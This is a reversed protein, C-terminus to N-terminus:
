TSEVNTLKTPNADFVRVIGKLLNSLLLNVGGPPLSAVQESVLDNLRCLNTIDSAELESSGNRKSRLYRFLAKALRVGFEYEFKTIVLMRALWRAWNNNAFAPHLTTNLNYYSELLKVLNCHMDRWAYMGPWCPVSQVLRVSRIVIERISNAHKAMFNNFTAGLGGNHVADLVFMHVVLVVGEVLCGLETVVGEAEAIRNVSMAFPSTNLLSMSYARLGRYMGGLANKMIINNVEKPNVEAKDNNEYWPVGVNGLPNAM